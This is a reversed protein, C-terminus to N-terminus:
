SEFVITGSVLLVGQNELQQKSIQLEYNLRTNEFESGSELEEELQKKRMLIKLIKAEQKYEGQIPVTSMKFNTGTWSIVSIPFEVLEYRHSLIFFQQLGLRSTSLYILSKFISTVLFSDTMHITLHRFMCYDCKFWFRILQNLHDCTFYNSILSVSFSNRITMLDEVRVWDAEHYDMEYIYWYVYISDSESVEVQIYSKNDKVYVYHCDAKIRTLEVYNEMQHATLALKIREQVTMLRIIERMPVFPLEAFPFVSQRNRGFYSKNRKVFLWLKFLSLFYKESFKTDPDLYM